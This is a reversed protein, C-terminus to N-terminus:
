ATVSAVSAVGIAIFVLLLTMILGRGALRHADAAMQTRRARGLLAQGVGLGLIAAVPHVYAVLPAADWYSGLGYLVIGLLVQVSLLLYAARYLGPRFEVGDKARKFATLAAIVVVLSVLYGLWPHVNLLLETV